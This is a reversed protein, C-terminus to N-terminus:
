EAPAEDKDGFLRRVRQWLWPWRKLLAVIATHATKSCAALMLTGLILLPLGLPIPTIAFPIAIFMLALGLAAGIMRFVTVIANGIPNRKMGNLTENM